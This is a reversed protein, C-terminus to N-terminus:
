SIVKRLIDQQRYHDWDKLATMATEAMHDPIRMAKIESLAKILIRVAEALNDHTCLLADVVVDNKKM